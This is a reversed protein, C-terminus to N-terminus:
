KADQECERIEFESIEGQEKLYAILKDKDAGFKIAIKLLCSGCFFNECNYSGCESCDDQYYEKVSM